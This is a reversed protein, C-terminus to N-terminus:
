LDPELHFTGTNVAIALPGTAGGADLAARSPTHLRWDLLVGIVPEVLVVHWDLRNVDIHAHDNRVVPNVIEDPAHEPRKVRRARCVRDNTLNWGGVATSADSLGINFRAIFVRFAARRRRSTSGSRFTKAL